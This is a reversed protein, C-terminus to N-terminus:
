GRGRATLAADLARLLAENITDGSGAHAKGGLGVAAHCRPGNYEGGIGGITYSGKMALIAALTSAIEVAEAVRWRAADLDTTTTM